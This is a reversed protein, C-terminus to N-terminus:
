SLLYLYGIRGFRLNFWVWSYHAHGYDKLMVHTFQVEYVGGFGLGLWQAETGLTDLKEQVAQM